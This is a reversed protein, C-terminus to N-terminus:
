RGRWLGLDQEGLSVVTWAERYGDNRRRDTRTVVLAESAVEVGAGVAAQQPETM